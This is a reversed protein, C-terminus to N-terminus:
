LHCVGLRSRNNTLIQLASYILVRYGNQSQLEVTESKDRFYERSVVISFNKSNLLYVNEDAYQSFVWAATKLAITKFGAKANQDNYRQLPQQTGEFLAQTAADSVALSPTSTSGSGKACANWLSTLAAEIDTDDTYTEEQNEWWTYTGSVIGGITGTGATSVLSQLGILGNTTTSFVQQELKDDHSDIANSLLSRVLAVKQQQTPNTVEDKKSWTVPVSIEAIDYSAATIVEPKTLSVEQLDTALLTTGPNAQYDLTIDITSGLSRRDIMGQREAERMFASEAWQNEPSRKANLVAPYSVSLIQSILAM